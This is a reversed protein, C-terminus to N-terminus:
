RCKGHPLVVLPARDRVSKDTPEMYVCEYDM